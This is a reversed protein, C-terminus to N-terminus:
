TDDNLGALGITYNMSDLLTRTPVKPMEGWRGLREIEPQTQVFVDVIDPDFQKGKQKMIEELATAAPISPKYIRVSRMADYADVISFIRAGLCIDKGQLGRPYGSGDYKEQHSLVIEAAERLDECPKLIEFGIEPHRKMVRMEEDNLSEPKLLISDPIAVKGIDHLAAGESLTKLEKDSLQMAKGMVLSLQKVRMSHQGTTHERADLMAVIAELTNEYSKEMQEMAMELAVSKERIMDELHIHYLANELKLHHYDMARKLTVFLKDRNVPTEVVDFVGERFSRIATQMLHQPTILITVVYQDIAKVDSMFRSSGDRILETQILLLNFERKRLRLIQLVEKETQVCTIQFRDHQLLERVVTCNDKKSYLLLQPAGTEEATSTSRQARDLDLSIESYAGNKEMYISNLSIQKAKYMAQDAANMLAEHTNISENFVGAGVSAHATLDHDDRCFVHKNMAQAIRKAVISAEKEGAEPLLVAFEDGGMRGVIDSDRGARQLLHAFECLIRDGVPHGYTDNIQKFEDLDIVLVAFTQNNKKAETAHYELLAEFKRRNYVGTLPDRIALNWIRNLAALVTSLQNAAHYLFCIESESYFVKETSATTLLGWLEGGIIIPISFSSAITSAGGEELEKGTVEVAAINVPKKRKSLAHYRAVMDRQLADIFPQAVPEYLSIMLMHRGDEHGLVGVASGPMIRGLGTNLKKLADTLNDGGMATESLQRLIKLQNRIEGVRQQDSIKLRHKKEEAVKKIHRSLEEPHIPKELFHEIGRQRARKEIDRDPFGTLIIFGLWPWIRQAEEIFTMGDMGPMNLDVVLVDFDHELLMHLAIPGEDAVEVSCGEKEMSLKLLRRIIPDDDIILVNICGTSM